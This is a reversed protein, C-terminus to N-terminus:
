AAGLETSNVEQSSALRRRRCTAEPLNLWLLLTSPRTTILSSKALSDSPRIAALIVPYGTM